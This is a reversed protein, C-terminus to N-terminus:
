HRKKLAYVYSNTAEELLRDFESSLIRTTEEPWDICEFDLQFNQNDNKALHFRFVWGDAHTATGASLDIQWETLNNSSM